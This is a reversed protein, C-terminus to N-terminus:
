RLGPSDHRGYWKARKNLGAGFNIFGRQKMSDLKM